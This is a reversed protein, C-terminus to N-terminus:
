AGGCGHESNPAKWTEHTRQNTGTLIVGRTDGAPCNTPLEAVCLKVSDGPKSHTIGPIDVYEVQSTGDAYGIYSGSQPANELRTGVEKVTTTWCAGVTMAMVSDATSATTEAAAGSASADAAPNAKPQCAGLVLCTVGTTLLVAVRTSIQKM